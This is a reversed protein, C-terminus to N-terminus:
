QSVIADCLPSQGETLPETLLTNAIKDCVMLNGLALQFTTLPNTIDEQLEAGDIIELCIQVLDTVGAARTEQGAVVADVQPIVAQRCLEQQIQLLLAENGPPFLSDIQNWILLL